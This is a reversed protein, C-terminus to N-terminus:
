LDDELQGPKWAEFELGAKTLEQEAKRIEQAAMSLVIDKLGINMGNIVLNVENSYMIVNSKNETIALADPHIQTMIKYKRISAQYEAYKESLKKLEDIKM